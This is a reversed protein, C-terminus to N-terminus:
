LLLAEVLLPLDTLFCCSFGGAPVLASEPLSVQAGAACGLGVWWAVTIVELLFWKNEAHSSGGINECMKAM